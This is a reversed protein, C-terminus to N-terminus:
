FGCVCCYFYLINMNNSCESCIQSKATFYIDYCHKGKNEGKRFVRICTGALKHNRYKGLRGM